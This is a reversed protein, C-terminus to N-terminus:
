NKSGQPYFLHRQSKQIQIIFFGEFLDFTKKNNM